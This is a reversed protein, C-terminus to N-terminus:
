RIDDINYPTEQYVYYNIWNSYFLNAHARWTVLPGEDPNNHRYYNRPVDVDKRINVKVNVDGKQIDVDELLAFFGNDLHYEIVSTGMPLSKLQISYTDFKGM